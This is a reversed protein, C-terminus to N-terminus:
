EGRLRIRAPAAKASARGYQINGFDRRYMAGQAVPATVAATAIRLPQLFFRGRLGAARLLAPLRSWGSLRTM